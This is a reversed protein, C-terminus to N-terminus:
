NHHLRLIYLILLLQFWKWFFIFIEISLSIVLGIFWITFAGGLHWIKMDYYGVKDSNLRDSSATVERIWFSYLGNERLRIIRFFQMGYLIFILKRYVQQLLFCM